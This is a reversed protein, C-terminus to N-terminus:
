RMPALNKSRPAQGVMQSEYIALPVLWSAWCSAPYLWLADYNTVTALGGIIRIVVASCLLLFTRWMWRRHTVFRRQVAARWGLAICVATAISLAGLGAGAIAGTAAYWSMWLGSPAVLLLVCVGQVRGLRRHWRPTWARFRDSILITGLLLSVPGAALHVYFAWHYPGWFYADRGLLFDSTFNPPLYNRYEYVVSATVKWILVVALLALVRAATISRAPPMLGDYCSSLDAAPAPSRLPGIRLDPM